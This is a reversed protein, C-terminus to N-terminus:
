TFENKKARKHKTVDGDQARARGRNGQTSTPIQIKVSSHKIRLPRQKLGKNEKLKVNKNQQNTHREGRERQVETLQSAPLTVRVGSTVYDTVKM